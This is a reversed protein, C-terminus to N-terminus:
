WLKRLNKVSSGRGREVGNDSGGDNDNPDPTLAPPTHVSMPSPSMPTINGDDEDDDFDDASRSLVNIRLKHLRSRAQKWSNGGHNTGSDNNHIKLQFSANSGITTKRDGEEDGSLIAQKEEEDHEEEEENDNHKNSITSLRPPKIQIEM